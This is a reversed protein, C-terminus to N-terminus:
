RDDARAVALSNTMYRGHYFWYTHIDAERYAGLDKVNVVTEFAVAAAINTMWEGGTQRTRFTKSGTVNSQGQFEPDSTKVMLSFDYNTYVTTVVREYNTSLVTEAINRNIRNAQSNFISLSSYVQSMLLATLASACFVTVLCVALVVEVLSIGAVSHDCETQHNIGHHRNIM